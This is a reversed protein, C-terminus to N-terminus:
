RSTQKDVVLVSGAQGCDSTHFCMTSSRVFTPLVCESRWHTCLRWGALRNWRTIFHANQDSFNKARQLPLFFNCCLHCRYAILPLLCLRLGASTRGASRGLRSHRHNSVLRWSNSLDLAVSECFTKPRSKTNIFWEIHTKWCVCERVEKTQDLKEESTSQWLLSLHREGRM